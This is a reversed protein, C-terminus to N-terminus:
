ILPPKSKYPHDSPLKSTLDWKHALYGELKTRKTTDFAIDDHILLFEAMRCDTPWNFNQSEFDGAMVAFVDSTTDSTNGTWGSVTDDRRKTGNIYARFSQQSFRSTTLSIIWGSTTTSISTPFFGTSVGTRGQTDSDLRISNYKYVNDDTYVHARKKGSGNAYLCYLGTNASSTQMEAVTIISLNAVNRGLNSNLIRLAGGSGGSASDLYNKNNLLGVKLVVNTSSTSVHNSNGSIDEWRKVTSGDNTVLNGGSSADYYTQQNGDLWVMINSLQKPTWLSRKRKIYTINM